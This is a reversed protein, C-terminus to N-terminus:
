AALPRHGRARAGRRGSVRRRRRGRAAEPLLRRGALAARRRGDAQDAARGDRRPGRRGHGARLGLRSFGCGISRSGSRRGRVGAPVAAIAEAAAAAGVALVVWVITALLVTTCRARSAPGLEAGSKGIFLARLRRSVCRIKPFSVAAAAAARAEPCPQPGGAAAAAEKTSYTAAKCCWEASAALAAVAGGGGHGVLVVETGNKLSSLTKQLSDVVDEALELLAASARARQFDPTVIDCADADLATVLKTAGSRWHISIVCRADEEVVCVQKAGAITEVIDGEPARRCLECAELAELAMRARCAASARKKPEPAGGAVDRAAAVREAVTAGSASAGM